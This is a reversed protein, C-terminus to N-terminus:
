GQRKLITFRECQDLESLAIKKFEEIELLSKRNEYFRYCSPLSVKRYRFINEFIDVLGRKYYIIKNINKYKKTDEKPFAIWEDDIHCWRSSTYFCKKLKNFDDESVYIDKSITFDECQISFSSQKLTTTDILTIKEYKSLDYKINTYAYPINCNYGRESYKLALRFELIDKFKSAKTIDDVLSLGRSSCSHPHGEQVFKDGLKVVFM